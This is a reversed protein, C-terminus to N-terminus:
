DVRAPARAGTEGGRDRALRDAQGKRRRRPFFDGLSQRQHADPRVIRAPSKRRRRGRGCIKGSGASTANDQAYTCDGTLLAWDIWADKVVDDTSDSWDLQVKYTLEKRYVHGSLSTRARRIDANHVDDADEVHSNTYLPQIFSKLTIKFEDGMSFTIGQGPGGSWTGRKPITGAAPEVAKTADAQAFALAATALVAMTFGFLKKM